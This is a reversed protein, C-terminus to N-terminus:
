VLDCLEGSRLFVQLNRRFHAQHVGATHQGLMAPGPRGYGWSLRAMEEGPGQLQPYGDGESDCVFRDRPHFCRLCSM